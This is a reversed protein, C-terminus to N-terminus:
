KWCGIETSTKKLYKEGVYMICDTNISKIM